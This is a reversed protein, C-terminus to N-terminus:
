TPLSVEIAPSSMASSTASTWEECPSQLGWQQPAVASVAADFANAAIRYKAQVETMERAYTMSGPTEGFAPGLDNASPATAM